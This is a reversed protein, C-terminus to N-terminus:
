LPGPNQKQLMTVAAPLLNESSRRSAHAPLRRARNTRPVSAPATPICGERITPPLRQHPQPLGRALALPIQLGLPFGPPPSPPLTPICGEALASPFGSPSPSGSVTPGERVTPPLRQHPQPLRRALALPIQLGLPFGPPPSPPLTPISGERSRSPFGAPSRAPLVTPICGERLRSPFGSPSPSGSVTPGERVTPPLQQHPQPLRRALALPIRLGLPFGHPPRPPPCPQPGDAGPRKAGKAQPESGATSGRSHNHRIAAPTEAPPRPKLRPKIHHRKGCSM